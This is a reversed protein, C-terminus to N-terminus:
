SVIAGSLQCDGREVSMLHPHVARLRHALRRQATDRHEAADLPGIPDGHVCHRLSPSGICACSHSVAPKALVLRKKRLQAAPYVWLQATCVEDNLGYGGV